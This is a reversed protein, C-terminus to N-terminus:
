IDNELDEWGLGNEIMFKLKHIEKEQKVVMETREIVINLRDKNEEKLRKLEETQLEVKTRERYFYDRYEDRSITLTENEQKAFEFLMIKVTHITGTGAFEAHIETSQKNFYEEVRKMFKNNEQERHLRGFLGYEEEHHLEGFLEDTM